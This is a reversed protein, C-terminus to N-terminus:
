QAPTTLFTRTYDLAAEIAIRMPAPNKRTESLLQGGEIAALIVTALAAPDADSRLDGRARLREFLNAYFGEWAGFAEALTVRAREHRSAIENAMTGIPCGSPHQEYLAVLGRLRAELDGFSEMGAFAQTLLELVQACRCEVAAEVLAERDAFYHYLQSKSAGAAARVDDLSTHEIGRAAVLEAASRVIRDRTEQGRRTKPGASV